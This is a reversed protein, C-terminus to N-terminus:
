EFLSKKPAYMTCALVGGSSNNPRVAAGGDETVFVGHRTGFDSPARIGLCMVGGVDEAASLASLDLPVHLLVDTSAVVVGPPANAFLRGTCLLVVASSM